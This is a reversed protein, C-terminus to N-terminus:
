LDSIYPYRVLGQAPLQFVFYKSYVPSKTHSEVFRKQKGLIESTKFDRVTDLILVMNLVAQLLMQLPPAQEGRKIGLMPRSIEIAKLARAYSTEAWCDTILRAIEKKSVLSVDELQSSVQHTGNRRAHLYIATAPLIRFTDHTVRRFGLM